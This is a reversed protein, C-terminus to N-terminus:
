PHEVPASTAPGRCWSSWDRKYEALNAPLVRRVPARYERPPTEPAAVAVQCYELAREGIAGYDFTVAAVCAGTEMWPCFEPGPSVVILRPGPPPPSQPPPCDLLPWSSIAVWAALRPYRATRDAMERRATAPDDKGDVDAWREVRPTLRLRENFASYREVVSPNRNGGHLVMVPGGGGGVYESTMEALARGAGYEDYGLHGACAEGGPKNVLTVVQVGGRRLQDLVPRIGESDIVQICVGVLTPTILSRVLAVQADSSATAPAEYRVPFIGHKDDYRQAGARLAPWIPDGQSAGIFVITGRSAPLKGPTAQPEKECGCLALAAVSLFSTCIVNARM